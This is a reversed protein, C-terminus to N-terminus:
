LLHQLCRISGPLLAKTHILGIHLKSLNITGVLRLSGLLLLHHGLWRQPDLQSRFLLLEPEASYPVELAVLVEHHGIVRM